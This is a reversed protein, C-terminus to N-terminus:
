LCTAGSIKIPYDLHALIVSYYGVPTCVSDKCISFIFLYFIIIFLICKKHVGM